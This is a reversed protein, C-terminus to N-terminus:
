DDTANFLKGSGSPSTFLLFGVLFDSFLLGPGVVTTRPAHTLGLVDDTTEVALEWPPLFFPLWSRLLDSGESGVVFFAVDLDLVRVGEGEFCSASVALCSVSLCLRLFCWLGCLRSGLISSTGDSMNRGM